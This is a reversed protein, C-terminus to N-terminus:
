ADDGELATKMAARAKSALRRVTVPSARMLRSAEESTLGLVATLVLAARQRPTAASLARRLEDRQDVGAFPDAPLGPAVLRRAARSARRLRMRFGNLATRYLYGVPDDLRSIRDWREWVRAFADQMIDEAENRDGTILALARYLRAHEQAFFEEFPVARVAHVALLERQLHADGSIM